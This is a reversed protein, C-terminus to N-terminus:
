VSLIVDHSIYLRGAWSIVGELLSMPKQMQDMPSVSAQELWSVNRYGSM